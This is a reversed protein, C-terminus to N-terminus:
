WVMEMAFGHADRPPTAPASRATGALIREATWLAAFADIILRLATVLVVAPSTSPASTTL